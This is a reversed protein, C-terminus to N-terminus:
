NCQEVRFNSRGIAAEYSDIARSQSNGNNEKQPDAELRPVKVEFEVFQQTVITPIHLYVIYTIDIKCNAYIRARM